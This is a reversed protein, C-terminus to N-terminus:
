RVKVEVINSDRKLLDIAKKDDIYFYPSFGDYFGCVVKGEETKGFIRIVPKEDLLVYDVDLIQLEM